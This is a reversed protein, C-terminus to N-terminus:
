SLAKEKKKFLRNKLFTVEDSIKYNKYILLLGTAIIMAFITAIFQPKYLFTDEPLKFYRLVADLNLFYAISTAIYLTFNRKSMGYFFFFIMAPHSYREHMETNFYFFILTILGSTLFLLEQIDSKINKLIISYITKIFLPFLALASFILFLLLGFSKYTMTLKFSGFGIRIFNTVDSTEWLNGDAIFYWMNFANMSAQPFYSASNIVVLYLENITGSLLFPTLIILQTVIAAAIIQIFIKISSVKPILCLFIVPFFIVSQLKMNLALVFVVMALRPMSLVLFLSLLILNSHISDVQGWLMTNYLYAVNFLLFFHYGRELEFKKKFLMLIIVPLFDFLLPILRFYYINEVIKENNEQFLNFVYLFYMILPPYNSDSKKYVNGIGYQDIATAWNSWCENDFGFGGSTPMLFFLLLFCLPLELYLRRSYKENM